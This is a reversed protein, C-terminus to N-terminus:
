GISAQRKFDLSDISILRVIPVCTNSIIALLRLGKKQQFMFDCKRSINSMDLIKREVCVKQIEITDCREIPVGVIIIAKSM